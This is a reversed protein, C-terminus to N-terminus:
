HVDAWRATSARRRRLQLDGRRLRGALLGQRRANGAMGVMPQNLPHGGMSGYFSPTASPQVDGRRLRGALLRKGDATAAMGVIPKNSSSTRGDLRLLRRRRLQVDGGDSAVLWYGGGDPTAAMGVVPQNLTIDAWPATSSPTASASCGGTPPSWGTAAQRGPNTAMGVIPSTSRTTRGDLRLLRTDGFGFIGGDSAVLWHGGTDILSHSTVHRRRATCTRHLSRRATSRKVMPASDWVCSGLVVSLTWHHGAHERRRQLIRGSRETGARRIAREPLRCAYARNGPATMM